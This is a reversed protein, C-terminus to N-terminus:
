TAQPSNPLALPHCLDARSGPVTRTMYLDTGNTLGTFPNCEAQNIRITAIHFGTVHPLYANSARVEHDAIPLIRVSCRRSDPVAPKMGSVQSTAVHVAEIPECSTLLLDDDAAPAIDGWLFNFSDEVLMRRDTLHAHHAPWVM